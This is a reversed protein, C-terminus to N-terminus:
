VKEFFKNAIHRSIPISSTAAPSPANCTHLTRKTEQFVFDGVLNGNADVAQARVGAPYASLESAAIDPFYTQLQKAYSNKSISNRLEQYIARKYQLLMKWLAPYSILSLVEKLNISRWCYGERALALIANPGVTNYGAIQPTVHIGLFPMNPYPVPYILHNFYNDYKSSLRYYEGRFPIIRVEPKQGSLAVMKDSHLGACTILHAAQYKQKTTTVSVSDQKENIRTVAEGCHISVGAQEALEAYKNCVQVWNVIGSEEVFLAAEAKLGPQAKQAEEGTLRRVHLQNQQCRKELTNMWEIEQANTAVILKGPVKFPIHHETCFDKTAQCGERCFKAKLSGPPYYVGAHIVGSNHGTQHQALQPEKELLLVKLHSDRKKIELATACGIIGGGVIIVDYNM